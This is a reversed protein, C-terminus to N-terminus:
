PKGEPWQPLLFGADCFEEVLQEGLIVHGGVKWPGGLHARKVEGGMGTVVRLFSEAGPVRPLHVLPPLPSALRLVLGPLLLTRDLPPDLRHASM